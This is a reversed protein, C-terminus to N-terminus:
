VGPACRTPGTELRRTSTQAQPRGFLSTRGTL